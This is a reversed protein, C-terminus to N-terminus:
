LKEYLQALHSAKVEWDFMESVRRRGAEGMRVRLDIKALSVMGELSGWRKSLLTPLFNLALKGRYQVAPGGLDLCLVPRGAAMSGLLGMWGSDHLSPHVLATCEGLKGCLKETTAQEL